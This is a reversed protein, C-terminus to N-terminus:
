IWFTRYPLNSSTSLSSITISMKPFCKIPHFPLGYVQQYGCMTEHLSAKFTDINYIIASVSHNSSLSILWIIMWGYTQHCDNSIMQIFLLERLELLWCGPLWASRWLAAEYARRKTLEPAAPPSLERKTINDQERSRPQRRLWHSEDQLKCSHSIMSPTTFNQWRIRGWM